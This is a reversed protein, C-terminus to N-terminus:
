KALFNDIVFQIVSPALFVLILGVLSYILGRTASGIKKDDGMSTIYRFGSIVIMIVAFLAAFNVAWNIVELVFGAFDTHTITSIKSLDIIMNKSFFPGM